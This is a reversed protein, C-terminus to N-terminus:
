SIKELSTKLDAQVTLLEGLGLLQWPEHEGTLRESCVVIARENRARLSEVFAETEKALAATAQHFNGPHRDVFYLSYYDPKCTADRYAFLRQGDSLLFNLCSFHTRGILKLARALGAPVDGTEAKICRLLWIFLVESDTAGELEHKKAGTLALLLSRDVNGNHAFLWPDQRFPHSNELCNAGQTAKRVHCLFIDSVANASHELYSLSTTAALPEKYLHTEGREYWGIGWGDSHEAGYPRFGTMSFNLDVPKNARIGLLRCM